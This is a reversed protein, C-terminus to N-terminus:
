VQIFHRLRRAEEGARRQLEADSLSSEQRQQAALVDAEEVAYGSTRALALFDALELPEALRAALDERGRALALFADLQELSM